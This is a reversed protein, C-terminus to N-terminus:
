NEQDPRRAAVIAAHMQAVISLAISAPGSGGLDLGAPGHLRGALAQGAEGLESVLRERRHRPGLLGVYTIPTAALQRLYDRDSGLHHSMVITAQFQSLDLKDALETPSLCVVQEALTFDAKELYGPRHDQLTVRWGLEAAFRVVPGADLGGGLVLIRPPPRLLAFLANVTHSAVQLTECRSAGSARTDLAGRLLATGVAAGATQWAVGDGDTVLASGTPIADDSSELVTAVVEDTDGALIGAIATFPQYDHQDTLPMLFIRMLGDCGVGLGWLEEDDHALDYTVRQCEGSDIVQRAREALDGELCGGSLMGHFDGDGNILMQAGVKSYTSGETEYVMALAMPQRDARWREFCQLLQGPTM